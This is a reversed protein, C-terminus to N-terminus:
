DLDGWALVHDAPLDRRLKRGVLEAARGPAIGTGPRKAALDAASLVAGAPLARALVLSKRAVAAVEAERTAPRKRGDGLSALVMRIGEVMATLEGPELSAKHDPGPLTRDLTMHKEIVRAGLTAAALPVAIGQTHDSFGVPGGFCRTLTDMARLNVDEPPAPYASVCHLLCLPPAGAAEIAAVAQSVEALDSMGTSVIMPLGLRALHTLYPLNTLEGSPTKMVAVGLRALLDACDEDFPTSLFLIGADAAHRMLELHQAEDLELRRLMDLQSEANGTTAQQYAAKPAQASALRDAKFTQFKVAHAGAQAAADVLRHALAIDGNHNVGAEAIVFCGPEQAFISSYTVM